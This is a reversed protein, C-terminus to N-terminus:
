EGDGEDKIKQDNTQKATMVVEVATMVLAGAPRM